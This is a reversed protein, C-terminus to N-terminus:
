CHGKEEPQASALANKLNKLNGGLLNNIEDSDVFGISILSAEALAMLKIIRDRTALKRAQPQMIALRMYGLLSLLDMARMELVVRNNAKNMDM